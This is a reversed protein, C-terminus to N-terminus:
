CRAAICEGFIQVNLQHSKSLQKLLDGMARADPGSNGYFLGTYLLIGTEAMKKLSSLHVDAPISTNDSQYIYNGNSDQLHVIGKLVSRADKLWGAVQAQSINLFARAVGGGQVIVQYGAEKAILMVNVMQDRPHAPVAVASSLTLGVAQATVADEDEPLQGGVQITM